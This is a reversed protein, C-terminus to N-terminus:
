ACSTQQATLSRWRTWLSLRRRSQQHGHTPLQYVLRLLMRALLRPPATCAPRNLALQAPTSRYRLWPASAVFCCKGAAVRRGQWRTSSFSHQWYPRYCPARTPLRHCARPQHFTPSRSKPHRLPNEFCNGVAASTEVRKRKSLTPSVRRRWDRHGPRGRRSAVERQIGRTEM